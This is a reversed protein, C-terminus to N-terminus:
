KEFLLKDISTRVCFFRHAIIGVIFLIALTMWYSVSIGQFQLGQYIIWACIMVVVVDIVAIDFIRYKHIGIGPEGFLSKYKCLNFM